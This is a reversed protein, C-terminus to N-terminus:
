SFRCGVPGPLNAGGFTGRPEADLRALSSNQGECYASQSGEVSWYLRRMSDSLMGTEVTEHVLRSIIHVFVRYDDRRVEQGRGMISGSDPSYPEGYCIPANIDQICGLEGDNPHMLGLLHGFEHMASVQRNDDTQNTDRPNLELSEEYLQAERTGLPLVGGDAAAADAVTANSPQLASAHQQGPTEGPARRFVKIAYLRQEQPLAMSRNDFDVCHVRVKATPLIVNPVRGVVGVCNIASRLEWKESWTHYVLNIFRRKWQATEPVTWNVAGEAYFFRFRATVYVDIQYRTRGGSLQVLLNRNFGQNLAWGM